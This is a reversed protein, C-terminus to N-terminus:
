SDAKDRIRLFDVGLVPQISFTRDRRTLRRLYINTSLEQACAIQETTMRERLEAKKNTTAVTLNLWAYAQVDDQPVGQGNRFM